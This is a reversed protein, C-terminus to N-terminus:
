PVRALSPAAVAKRRQVESAIALRRRAKGRAKFAAPGGWGARGEVLHTEQGHFGGGLRQGLLELRKHHPVRHRALLDDVDRLCAM